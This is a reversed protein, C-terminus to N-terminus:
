RADCRLCRMAEAIANLKHFGQAVEEFSNKRDESNLYKMTFREHEVVEVDNAAKPIEIPEGTNLEGSGGLYKDMSKAAKKGDAIATIVVDSGRVVDGGAFVGPMSTMQTDSNTVFTGWETIEVEDKRIFPFDSYQSVAPIVMDVNFMYESNKIIKTKKRGSTDFGTVEMKVCEIQTVKDKGIFKVPAVLTHLIVGEEVADQIERKDAPMEDQTRRYLIHVEGAGKRIAVRAADVATNGGGIIAVINGLKVTKNLNSDRLFDLGHYIGALEEGEIGIKRSLQTVTAIY